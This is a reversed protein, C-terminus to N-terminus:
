LSGNTATTETAVFACGRHKKSKYGRTVGGVGVGGALWRKWRGSSVATTARWGDGKPRDAVVHFSKDDNHDFMKSCYNTNQSGKKFDATITLCGDDNGYAAM